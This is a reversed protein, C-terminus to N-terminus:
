RATVLDVAAAVLEEDGELVRGGRRLGRDVGLEGEGLLLPRISLLDAHADAHVGALRDEGVRVVEADLHVLRSADAECAM